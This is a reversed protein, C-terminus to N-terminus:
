AVLKPSAANATRGVHHLAREADVLGAGIAGPGDAMPRASAILARRVVRAQAVPGLGRGATAEILLACIGAVHPAAM